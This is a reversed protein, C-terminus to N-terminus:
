KSRRTLVALILSTFASALATAAAPHDAIWEETERMANKARIKYIKAFFEAKKQCETATKSAEQAFEAFKKEGAQQVYASGHEFAQKLNKTAENLNGLMVFLHDQPASPTESASVGARYSSQNQEDNNQSAPKTSTNKTSATKGAPKKTTKKSASKAATKKVAKKVAKQSTPESM